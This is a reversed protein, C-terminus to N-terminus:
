GGGQESVCLAHSCQLSVPVPFVRAVRGGPRALCICTQHRLFSHKSGEQAESVGIRLRQRAGRWGLFTVVAQEWRPSHLPPSFSVKLRGPLLLFPCMSQTSYLGKESGQVKGAAQFCSTGLGSFLFVCGACLCVSSNIRIVQSQCMFRGSMVEALLFYVAGKM